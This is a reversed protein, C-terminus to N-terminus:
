VPAPLLNPPPLRYRTSNTSLAVCISNMSKMLSFDCSSATTRSMLLRMSISAFPETSYSPLCGICTPQQFDSRSELRVESSATASMSLARTFCRIVAASALFWVGKSSLLTRRRSSRMRTKRSPEPRGSSYQSTAARCAISTILM